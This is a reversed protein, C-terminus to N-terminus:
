LVVLFTFVGEEGELTELVASSSCTAALDGKSLARSLISFFNESADFLALSLAKFFSAGAGSQFGKPM